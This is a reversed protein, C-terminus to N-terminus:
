QTRTAKMSSKTIENREYRFEVEGMRPFFFVVAIAQYLQSNAIKVSLNSFAKAPSKFCQAATLRLESSSYVVLSIAACPHIGGVGHANSLM